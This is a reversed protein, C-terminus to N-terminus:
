TNGGASNIIEVLRRAANEPEQSLGVASTVCIADAGARAVQEINEENIGGIAVLPM